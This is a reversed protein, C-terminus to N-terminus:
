SCCRAPGSAPQSRAPSSCHRPFRTAIQNVKTPLLKYTIIQGPVLHSWGDTRV